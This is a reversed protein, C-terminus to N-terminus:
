FNTYMNLKPTNLKKCEANKIRKDYNLVDQEKLVIFCATFPATSYFGISLLPRSYASKFM